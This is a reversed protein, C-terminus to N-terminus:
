DLRQRIQEVREFIIQLKQDLLPYPNPPFLHLGILVLGAAILGAGAMQAAIIKWDLRSSLLKNQARLHEEVWSL